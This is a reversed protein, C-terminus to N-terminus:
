PIAFADTINHDGEGGRAWRNQCRSGKRGPRVRSRQATNEPTEAPAFGLLDVDDRGATQIREAEEVRGGRGM